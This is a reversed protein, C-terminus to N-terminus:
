GMLEDIRAIARDVESYRLHYAPVDRALETAAHFSSEGCVMYNFANNTLRTLVVHPLERAVELSARKQFSPFAILKPHANLRQYEFSHADPFLHCVDGKRTNEYLPGHELRLGAAKAATISENKLPIPRPMPVFAKKTLDYIGFEDSLLRWGSDLLFATLTSKGSGPMAPLVLARDEKAVVGCHLLLFHHSMTAICWNLGWEFMPFAHSRPYPEFPLQGDVDFQVQQKSRPAFKRQRIIRIRFHCVADERELDLARYCRRFLALFDEDDSKLEIFFPGFRLKIGPGSAFDFLEASSLSQINM